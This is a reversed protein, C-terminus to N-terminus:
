QNKTISNVAAISLLAEMTSEAGSNKNIKNKALIGDFCRGNLNNYIKTKAINKGSFWTLWKQANIKYKINKTQKYAEVNAYIIPRIGYAIQPFSNSKVINTENIKRSFEINSKMNNKYLYEYFNNIELLAAKTYKKENLLKGAKLLAYSQLNGYAHWHNQWSLFAGKAIGDKIQMQLLGDALHRILKIDEQNQTRKYNLLLGVMLVSAQDTASQYPLNTPIIIGNVNQTGVPLTNLYSDINTTLKDISEVVKKALVTDMKQLKPLVKELAWLARWSWWNPEAVSTKYTTNIGLDKWIFNNFWGNKNQMYLLFQTLKVAKDLQIKDKSLFILARAADDVCAFGEKPEIAYKYDPYNSYIRIVGAQKGNPLIVNKNLYDLHKYNVALENQTKEQCGTFSYLILFLVIHLKLVKM